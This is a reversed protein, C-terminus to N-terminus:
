LRIHGEKLHVESHGDAFSRSSILWLTRPDKLFLSCFYAGENVPLNPYAYTLNSFNKAVTNGTFTVITNKKWNKYRDIKRGGETQVALVTQGGPLQAM